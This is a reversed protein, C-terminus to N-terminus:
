CGVHVYPIWRAFEKQGITNRLRSVADHLAWSAKRSDPVEGELMHGYFREAVLPADQDQISWMTAVVGSFGIMLMGAALHVAEDPLHEDGTATQCASLSAFEANQLPQEIIEALSLEGDHLQFASATPDTTNQSAHCALHVWSHKRMGDLVANSTASSGELRTLEMQSASAQVKDIEIITGPLPASGASAAQGVALIGRFSNSTSVPKLLSSLTPTYSSVVYNFVQAQPQDYCGAAHLPLFALPGTTCWTIHPPDKLDNSPQLFKLRELIPHVVDTWLISLVPEFSGHTSEESHYVPRRNTRISARSDRLSHLLQKQCDSANDFTFSPLEIHVTVASGRLLAIADSGTQNVIIVVITSSCAAPAINSFPKPRLFNHLGPLSRVQDLLQDWTQALQRHQVSQPVLSPTASSISRSSLSPMSAHELDNAVKKLQSVLDPAVASLDDLPTRLQLLQAWVVSRGQELWEIALECQKQSIAAAAAYAVLDKVEKALYEYRQHMTTGLWVVQSLLSMARTYAQLPSVGFTSEILAWIQSAKLRLSASGLPLLAAEKYASLAMFADESRNSEQFRLWYLGAVNVLGIPRHAHDDPTLMVARERQVIANDLDATMRLRQYRIQYTTGLNSLLIPKDPSSDPTLSVAQEKYLVASELDELRGLREFLLDHSIGLNTSVGPKNPHDDPTLSAATKTYDVGRYLDELRGLRRFLREYLCGLDNLLGARDPHDDPTHSAAQEKWNVAKDLDELKGLREFLLQYSNGLNNLCGPRDAHDEPTLQVAQEFYGLAKDLSEITDLRQFLGFYSTGLNNIFRFKEPHGEPALRVAEKQYKIAEKMGEVQNLRASLDYYSTGLSILMGPKDSDDDPCLSVSEKSFQVARDLDTLTGLQRFRYRYSVGLRNLWKSRSSDDKPTLDLIRRQFDIVTDLDHLTRSQQFQEWSLTEIELLAELKQQRLMQSRDPMASDQLGSAEMAELDEAARLMQLWFELSPTGNNLDDTLSSIALNISDLKSTLDMLMDLTYDEDGDNDDDCQSFTVTDHESNSDDTHPIESD